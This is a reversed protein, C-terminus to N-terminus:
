ISSVRTHLDMHDDPPLGVCAKFVNVIAQRQANLANVVQSGEPVVPAKM